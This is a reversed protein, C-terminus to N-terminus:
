TRAEYIRLVQKVPVIHEYNNHDTFRLWKDSESTPLSDWIKDIDYSDALRFDFTETQLRIAM